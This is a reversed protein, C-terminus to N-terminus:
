EARAEDAVAKLYRSPDQEFLGRSAPAEFYLVTGKYELLAATAKDVLNGTVPDTAKMYRAPDSLMKGRCMPCCGYYIKGEHEILLGPNPLVTDQMMCVHSREPVSGPAAEASAARLVFHM